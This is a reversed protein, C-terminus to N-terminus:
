RNEALFAGTVGFWKPANTISSQQTSADGQM